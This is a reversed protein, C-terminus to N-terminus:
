NKFINLVRPKPLEQFVTEFRKSKVFKLQTKKEGLACLKNTTFM